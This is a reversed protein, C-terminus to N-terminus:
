VSFLWAYNFALGPLEVMSWVISYSILLLMSLIMLVLFLSLFYFCTSFYNLYFIFYKRFKSQIVQGVFWNLEEIM